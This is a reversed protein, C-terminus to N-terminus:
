FGCGRSRLELVGRKWRNQSSLLATENLGDKHSGVDYPLMRHCM